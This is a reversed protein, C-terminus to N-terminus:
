DCSPTSLKKFNGVNKLIDPFQEGVDTLGDRLKKAPSDYLRYYIDLKDSITDEFEAQQEQSLARYVRFKRSLKPM